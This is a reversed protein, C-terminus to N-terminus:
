KKNKRLTLFFQTSYVNNQVKHKENLIDQPNKWVPVRTKKGRLYHELQKLAEGWVATENTNKLIKYKRM